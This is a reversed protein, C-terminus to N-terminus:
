DGLGRTRKMKEMMRAYEVEFGSTGEQLNKIKDRVAVDLEAELDSYNRLVTTIKKRLTVDEAYIEEVNQSHFLMNLIQGVLYPLVEDRPPAGLEKAVQSKMRGLMSYSLGRSEMRTKAEDIIQRDRRIHEKLVAEIDLRVEAVDLCDIDSAQVLESIIEESISPVKGSYIRM